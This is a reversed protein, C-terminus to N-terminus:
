RSLPAGPGSRGLTRGCPSSLQKSQRCVYPLDHAQCYGELYTFIRQVLDEHNANPASLPVPIGDLLEFDRGSADDWVLFEEFTLPHILTAYM